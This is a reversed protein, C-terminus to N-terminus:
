FKLIIATCNDMQESRSCCKFIKRMAKDGDMKMYRPMSDTDLSNTVGDTCILFVDGEQIRGSSFFAMDSGAIKSKGMYRTLIHLDRINVPQNNELKENVLTHERSLHKLRGKQLLYVPSDGVNAICYDKDKWIM